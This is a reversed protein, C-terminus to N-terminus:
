VRGIPRSHQEGRGHGAAGAGAQISLGSTICCFCATSTLLEAAVAARGAVVTVRNPNGPGSPPFADGGPLQGTSSSPSAIATRYTDPRKSASPKKWAGAQGM